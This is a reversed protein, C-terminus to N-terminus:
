NDESEQPQIKTKKKKFTVEKEQEEEPEVKAPEEHAEQSAEAYMSPTKPKADISAISDKVDDFTDDLNALSTVRGLEDSASMLEEKYSLAEQKLETINMEQEISSKADAVTSKMSRFFKAINIMAEPLKDPGLFIVAIVAIIMIEMFGMGFM